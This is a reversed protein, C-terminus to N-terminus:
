LALGGREILQETLQNQLDAAKKDLTELEGLLMEVAAEDDLGLVNIRVNYGAGTLAAQAMAAGTAADTIANANGTSTVELALEMVRLAQSAVELPIEAAHLTAEQIKAGRNPNDKSLKFAAMIAEFAQADREVATTLEARTAEAEDLITQMREEVEAYKKKGITLRAVMAVLGAGMAGAYAAASGGGPTPNGDALADLFTPADPMTVDQRESENMAAYLKQELVQDPEFQDM